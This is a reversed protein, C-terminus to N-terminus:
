ATSGGVHDVKDGGNVAIAIALIIALFLFVLLKHSAANRLMHM